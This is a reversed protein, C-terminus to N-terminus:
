LVQEFYYGDTTDRAVDEVVRRLRGYGKGTMLQEYHAIRELQQQKEENLTM